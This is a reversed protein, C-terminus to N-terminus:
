AHGGEVPNRRPVQRDELEKWASTRGGIEAFRGGLEGARFVIPMASVVGRARDRVLHIAIACANSFDDHSNSEHDIKTGRWVLSVFQEILIPVDLLAVEAANFAPEAAEYLESRSKRSVQYTIGHSQFDARFTQGGYADGTVSSIGYEKLIAAFKTVANRPNFPASGSQKEVLDIVAVREAAHAIALVADDASGGSMDVAGFYRQGPEPALSRRGAVVCALVRGQDFAAGEPAGPLNLHLRRFRGFPLRTRQQQLYGAGDPWSEMSPNARQEPPLEAFAADSCYDGSYWSFLMKRDRGARGITMLDHLPAGSTAFISAYSTIWTLADPRSPDPALAEILAWDRYAHIEDFGVFAFTKGHAGAVDKAPLIKLSASGDRLRLESALPEIEAALERNAAVIKKALSLDDGAQDADNALIFGDSGQMSRRIVLVFLAALILDLTKGNKKARGAVVMNHVPSGGPGYTDLAATFIARRYPEIVDLLPRGDLWRLRSFFALSTVRRKM